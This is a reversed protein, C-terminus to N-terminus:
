LKSPYGGCPFGNILARGADAQNSIERKLWSMNQFPIVLVLFAVEMDGHYFPGPLKVIVVPCAKNKDSRLTMGESSGPSIEAKKRYEEM